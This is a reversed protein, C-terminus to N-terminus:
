VTTSVTYTRPGLKCTSTSVTKAGIPATTTLASDAKVRAVIRTLFPPFGSEVGWRAPLSMSPPPCSVIRVYTPMIVWAIIMISGQAKRGDGGKQCLPVRLCCPRIFKFIVRTPTAKSTAVLFRSSVMM